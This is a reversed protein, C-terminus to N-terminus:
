ITSPAIRLFLPSNPCCGFETEACNIDSETKPVDDGSGIEGSGSEVPECGEGNPGKAARLNDPCCGFQTDYLFQV